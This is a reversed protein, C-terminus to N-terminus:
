DSDTANALANRQKMKNMFSAMLPFLACDKVYQLQLEFANPVFGIFNDTKLGMPISQHYLLLTFPPPHPSRPPTPLIPLDFTLPNRIDPKFLTEGGFLPLM